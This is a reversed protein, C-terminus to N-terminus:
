AAIYTGSILFTSNNTLDSALLPTISGSVFKFLNIQGSAGVIYGVIPQTVSANLVSAIVSVPYFDSSTGSSVFPLDNVAVAGTTAGLNTLTLRITFTVAKTVKYAVGGQAAYAVGAGGGGASLFSTFTSEASNFQIGDISYIQM